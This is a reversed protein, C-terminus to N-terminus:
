AAVMFNDHFVSGAFRVNWSNGPGEIQKLPEHAKSSLWTAADKLEHSFVQGSGFVPAHITQELTKSVVIKM